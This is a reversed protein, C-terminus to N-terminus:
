EKFAVYYEHYSDALQYVIGKNAVIFLEATFLCIYM